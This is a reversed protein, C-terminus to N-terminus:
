LEGHTEMRLWDLLCFMKLIDRILILKLTLLINQHGDELTYIEPFNKRWFEAYNRACAM